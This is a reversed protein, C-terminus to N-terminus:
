WNAGAVEAVGLVMGLIELARAYIPHFSVLEEFSYVVSMLSGGEDSLNGGNYPGSNTTSDSPVWCHGAGLLDL